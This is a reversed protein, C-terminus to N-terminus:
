ATASNFSSDSSAEEDDDGRRSARPRPAEASRPSSDSAPETASQTEPQAEAPAATATSPRRGRRAPTAPPTTPKDKDKGKKEDVKPQQRKLALESKARREADRESKADLADRWTLEGERMLALVSRLEAVQEATASSPSKGLYEKLDHAELGLGLAASVVGKIAAPLDKTDESTAVQRCRELCRARVDAPVLSLLLLRKVQAVQSRLRAALQEDSALVLYITEGAAGERQSLVTDNERVVRREITRDVRFTESTPANSELDIVTTRYLVTLEDEVEPATDFSVNRMLQQALEAFAGSLTDVDRGGAGPKRYYAARAFDPSDCRQLLEQSIASWDRPVMMALHYRSLTEVQAQRMRVDQTVVIGRQAQSSKSVVQTEHSKSM